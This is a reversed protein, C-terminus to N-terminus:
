EANEDVYYSFFEDEDEWYIRVFYTSDTIKQVSASEVYRGATDLQDLVYQHIGSWTIGAM